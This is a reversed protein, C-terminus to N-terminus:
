NEEGGGFTIHLRDEYITISQAKALLKLEPADRLTRKFRAFAGPRFAWILPLHGLAAKKVKAQGDAVALTFDRSVTPAVKIGLISWPGPKNTVRMLVRDPEFEVSLEDFSLSEARLHKLYANVERETVDRGAVVAQDDMTHMASLVEATRKASRKSGLTGIMSSRPWLACGALVFPPLILLFVLLKVAARSREAKIRQRTSDM